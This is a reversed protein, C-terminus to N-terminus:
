KMFEDVNIGDMIWQFMNKGEEISHVEKVKGEKKEKSNGNQTETKVKKNKPKQNHAPEVIKNRKLSKKKDLHFEILIWKLL